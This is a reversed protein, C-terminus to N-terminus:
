DSIEVTDEAADSKTHNIVYSRLDSQPLPKSFYYGQIMTCGLSKLIDFQEKTEVGEAVTKKNLNDALRIITEAICRSEKKTAIHDIFSKDLKIIDIPLNSIYSLSSYGTGFDDLALEVGLECVENLTKINNEQNELAVRETIEVILREAEVHNLELASLLNEQLKGSAIHRPSINVAVKIQPLRMQDWHTLFRCAQNIVWKEMDIILDKQEAIPIFNGPAILGREPHNLRILAEVGIVKNTSTSIKPQYYLQFWNFALADRIDKETRIIESVTSNMEKSHYQYQNRGLDKAKNSAYKANQILSEPSIESGSYHTIGISASLQAENNDSDLDDFIFPVRILKNIKEAISAAQSLENLGDAYLLFKDDSIRALYDNRRITKNLRAVVEKLVKDGFESQYLENIAKFNDLDIYLVCILSNDRTSRAIMKDLHQIIAKRNPIDTLVDHTSLYNLAQTAADLHFQKKKVAVEISSHLAREHEKRQHKDFTSSYSCRALSYLITRKLLQPSCESKTIYDIAGASMVSLALATSDHATLIIIPIRRNFIDEFSQLLELANTDPLEYDLLVCDFRNKSLLDKATAGTEAEVVEFDLKTRSLMERIVSRMVRDDEVLLIKYHEQIAQEM